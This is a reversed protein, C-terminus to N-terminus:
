FEELEKKEGTDALFCAPEEDAMVHAVFERPLTVHYKVVHGIQILSKYQNDYLCGRLNVYVGFLM